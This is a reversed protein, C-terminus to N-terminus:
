QAAHAHHIRAGCHGRQVADVEFARAAVHDRQDSARAAALRRQRVENRTEVFRRAARDQEIADRQRVVRQLAQALLDRPDPLADRQEVGRDRLVDGVACHPVRAFGVDDGGRLGRVRHFEDLAQGVADVAADAFAARQERAALALAKRDRASSL